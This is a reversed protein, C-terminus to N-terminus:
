PQGIPAGLQQMFPTPDIANLSRLQCRNKGCTVGTHVEFHLHPGSSHGSTGVLGIPDGVTVQQGYVVDPKRVMHCYRTAIQGAHLIEVFWGCGPTEPSGDIDCNGTDGDCGAWVVKGAAAARIVTYRKAGLDDGQHTPRSPTRFGSVVTARVPPTWGDASVAPSTGCDALSAGPLGSISAKGTVAAVVQEADNEFDAYRDPYGSKQVKQAAVTLPLSPWGSIRQLAKYFATSAYIPDQLQAPTGWGQSPRQQFLGLSDHDNRPGLNGHNTLRSETMATAVAIVWGRAPVRNHDGTAVIIAANGVQTSNWRGVAEAPGSFSVRDGDPTSTCAAAAPADDLVAALPLGCLALLALPTAIWPWARM